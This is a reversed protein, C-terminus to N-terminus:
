KLREFDRFEHKVRMIRLTEDEDSCLTLINPLLGLCIVTRVVAESGSFRNTM